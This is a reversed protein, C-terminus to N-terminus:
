THVCEIHQDFDYNTWGQQSSTCFPRRSNVADCTNYDWFTNNYIETETCNPGPYETVHFYVISEDESLTCWNYIYSEGGSGRSCQGLAYGYAATMDSSCPWEFDEYGFSGETVATDQIGLLKYDTPTMQRMALLQQKDVFSNSIDIEHADFELGRVVM